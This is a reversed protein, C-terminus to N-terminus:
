KTAPEKAILDKTKGCTKCKLYKGHEDSVVRIRSGNPGYREEHYNAYTWPVYVHRHKTVKVRSV